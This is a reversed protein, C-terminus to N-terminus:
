NGFYNGEGRLQAGRIAGFKYKTCNSLNENEYEGM